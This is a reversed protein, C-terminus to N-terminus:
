KIPHSVSTKPEKPLVIPNKTLITVATTTTPVLQEQITEQQQRQISRTLQISERNDTINSQMYIVPKSSM